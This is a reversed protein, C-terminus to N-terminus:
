LVKSAMALVAQSGGGRSEFMVILYAGALGKYGVM